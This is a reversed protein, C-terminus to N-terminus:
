LYEIKNEYKKIDIPQHVKIFFFDKNKRQIFIPIIDLGFKFALQAPLTTTFCKENFFNIKEGESVRQDVMLAISCKDKIFEIAERVGQRGKKIQNKCIYTKRLYEMFPNLFFNNLPRYIAALPIGKKTIEMSMLEFNAFHGSIFIVPKDKNLVEELIEQGDIQIHENTQRFKKLFMYEVFTKGYNSWMDEIIRKKMENTLNKDFKKLNCEIIRKSKVFPGIKKFINSFFNRSFNLGTIKIIIFFLYIIIAEFFYKIPKIM